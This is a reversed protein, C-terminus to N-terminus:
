PCAGGDENGGNGSITAPPYAIYGIHNALWNAECTPLSANDTIALTYISSLSGLAHLTTLAANNTISVSYTTATLHDLGQLSLLQPNNAVNLWYLSFNPVSSLGSISKLVNNGTISISGGGAAGLSALGNLGDLNALSTNSDIGLSTVSKLNGLGQLSALSSNGSISLGSGSNTLGSLDTLDTLSPNGTISLAGVSTLKSLGKLKALNPNSSITLGAGGVSALKDLGTLDAIANGSIIVSSASTVSLLGALSALSTNSSVNLDGPQALLSLSALSNLSTNNSIYL